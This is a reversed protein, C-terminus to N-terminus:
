GGRASAAPEAPSTSAPPAAVVGAEAASAAAPMATAPAAPAVPASAAPEAFKGVYEIKAAARMAKIDAAVLKRRAENLLYQEIAPGARAADVPEPRSGALVIVQGGTPTPVLIAQGDKMRTLTDIMNLPLQEAARVAQNANYRYNNAKLYEVFEAISKTNQLQERLAQAQEPKFEVSIEQISYVRRDRFLAPKDDFYKQVEEPTPKAAAEGTKEAYARALVERRAAEILQVVRPDRDLKLEQAKQVAVQQDVLRDLVERSANDVQGPPLGRQQALVTNIQAVTIEVRNVKAAIPSVAKDKGGGCGALAFAAALAAPAAARRVAGSWAFSTPRLFATTNM